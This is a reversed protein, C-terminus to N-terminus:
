RGFLRALPEVITQLDRIAENLTDIDVTGLAEMAEQIGAGSTEVLNNVNEILGPLDTQELEGTVQALNGLVKEAQSFIVAARPVLSFASVLSVIFIGAVLVAIVKLWRCQKKVYMISEEQQM